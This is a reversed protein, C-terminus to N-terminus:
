RAEEKKPGGEEKKGGKSGGVSQRYDAQGQNVFFVVDFYLLSYFVNKHHNKTLFFYYLEKLESVKLAKELTNWANILASYTRAKSM